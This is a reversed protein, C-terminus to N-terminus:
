IYHDKIKSMERHRRREGYAAVIESRVLAVGEPFTSISVADKFYTTWRNRTEGWVWEVGWKKVFTKELKELVGLKSFIELTGSLLSEGIHYRPFKERELLLVKKGYDALFTGASSGGPGGGIIVVDYSSDRSEIAM